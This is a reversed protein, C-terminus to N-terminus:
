QERHFRTLQAPRHRKVGPKGRRDGAVARQRARCLPYTKSGDFEERALTPPKSNDQRIRGAQMTKTTAIPIRAINPVCCLFLLGTQKTAVLKSLDRAPTKLVSLCPISAIRPTPAAFRDALRQAPGRNFLSEIAISSYISCMCPSCPSLAPLDLWKM